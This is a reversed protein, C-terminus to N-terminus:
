SKEKYGIRDEVLSHLRYFTEKEGWLRGSDDHGHGRDPCRPNHHPLIQASFCTSMPKTATTGIRM